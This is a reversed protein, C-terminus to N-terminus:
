NKSVKIKTFFDICDIELVVLIENLTELDLNAKGNEIRGYYSQSINLKSALYEQSYNKEIRMKRILKIAEKVM